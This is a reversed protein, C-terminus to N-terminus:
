AGGIAILQIHSNSLERKLRDAMTGLGKVKFYACM